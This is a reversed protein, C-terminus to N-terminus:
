FFVPLRIPLQFSFSGFHSHKQVRHGGSLIKWLTSCPSSLYILPAEKWVFRKNFIQALYFTPWEYSSVLCTCTLELQKSISLSHIDFSKKNSLTLLVFCLFSFSPSHVYSLVYSPRFPHLRDLDLEQVQCVHGRWGIGRRDCCRSGPLRSLQFHGRKPEKIQEEKPSAGVDRKSRPANEPVAKEREGAPDQVQSSSQSARKQGGARDSPLNILFLTELIAALGIWVYRM